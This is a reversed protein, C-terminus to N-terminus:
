EMCLIIKKQWLKSIEEYIKEQDEKLYLVKVNPGADMTFYCRYGKERLTKVIEMARYSEDTLFTFSPTSTTTTAHMALANAETIAGIKEFDANELAIKMDVFDEKAKRYEKSSKFEGNKNVLSPIKTPNSIPKGVCVNTHQGLCIDYDKVLEYGHISAHMNVMFGINKIVGNKVTEFIGYNVAKSFGLDDARIMFKKM